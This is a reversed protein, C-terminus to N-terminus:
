KILLSLRTVHPKTAHTAYNTLTTICGLKAATSTHLALGLTLTHFAMGSLKNLTHYACAATLTNLPKNKLSACASTMAGIKLAKPTNKTM